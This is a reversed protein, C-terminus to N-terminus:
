CTLARARRRLKAFAAELKAEQGEARAQEDRVLWGFAFGNGGHVAAAAGLERLLGRAMLSDHHERLLKQVATAQKVLRKATRGRVPVVTEAAYRLRNAAKRLEDLHEDRMPGPPRANAARLARHAREVAEAVTTPLLVSTPAAAAPTLPPDHLLAHVADLLALYRDSNLAEDAAQAANARRRAFFRTTQAAVPGLALEPPLASVAGGIRRQQVKFDCVRGLRAALWRLEVVLPETRDRELVVRFSQLTSLMRLCAARMADVSGPVGQRVRPDTARLAEAQERLYALVGEAATADKIAVPRQPAWPLHGALVRPLKSGSDARRAGANLLAREIRDLVEDTGHESLEVEIEAWAKVSTQTGLTHGAVRDDTVTAVPHGAVDTLMWERRVTALEVVPLLAAGRHAARTLAVLWAPPTLTDGPSLRVQDGGDSSAAFRLHWGDDRGGTWRSLTIRSRALRLDQTDFYTASLTLMVPERPSKRSEGNGSGAAASALAAALDTDIPQCSYYKREAKRVMKTEAMGL